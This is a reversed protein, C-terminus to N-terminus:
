RSGRGEELFEKLVLANNHQEDKAGYVITLRGKRAMERLRAVAAPRRALEGRYRKKFEPWKAPDHSFWKRLPASVAIEKMWEAIEAKEKSVGRPWLGDILVRMGDSKSPSEYARKLQIAM